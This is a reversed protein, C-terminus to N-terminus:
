FLAGVVHDVITSFPIASLWIPGFPLVAAIVVALLGQIDYIAPRMAYVNAVVAYLDTTASFDPRELVEADIKQDDAFWRTEFAQGARAALNSYRYVGIRWAALLARSFVLPPSGFLVLLVFATVVPTAEHGIPSAGAIVKNALTGAVVISLPLALTAFIRPSYGVFQLGGAQDPHTAVLYLGMRAMRWLFRVWVGLRWAWALILGLLVALSIGAHWWGALSLQLPLGGRQWTPLTDRPVLVVLLIVLAYVAAFLFGSPWVGTSLRRSSAMLAEYEPMRSEPVLNTTSFYQAMSDLRPLVVYDAVIFLPVALLFRGHVAADKLFAVFSGPANGLLSLVVLPMWTIAIAVIVRLTAERRDDVRILRLRRLMEVHTAESFLLGARM